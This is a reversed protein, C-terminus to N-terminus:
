PSKEKPKSARYLSLTGYVTAFRTPAAVEEFGGEAFLIPLSGRVNEAMTKFGDLFQVQLFALRMLPNQARGWDAVHLEGGPRLVRLIEELSRRKNERTLHHFFLSSLVRDFSDDPYPMDFSMAQDFHVDLGEGETKRRAIELIMPDGDLGTCKCEPYTSKLQALLSGTGCGLDLVDPNRELNAQEILARKFTKERLTWRM